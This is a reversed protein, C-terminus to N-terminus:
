SQYHFKVGKPHLINRPCVHCGKMVDRNLPGLIDCLNVKCSGNDYLVVEAFMKKTTGTTDNALFNLHFCCLFPLHFPIANAVLTLELRVGQTSWYEELAACALERWYAPDLEKWNLDSSDFRFLNGRATKTAASINSSSSDSLNEELQTNALKHMIEDARLRDRRCLHSEPVDGFSLRQTNYILQEIGKVGNVARISVM